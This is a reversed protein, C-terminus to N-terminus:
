KDLILNLGIKNLKVVCFEKRLTGKECFIMMKEIQILKDWIKEWGSVFFKGMKDMLLLIEM